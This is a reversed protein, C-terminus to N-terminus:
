GCLVRNKQWTHPRDGTKRPCKGPEPRGIMESRITKKGCYTCIYEIKKVRM